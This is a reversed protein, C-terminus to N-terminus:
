CGGLCRLGAPTINKPKMILARPSSSDWAPCVARRALRNCLLIWAHMKMRSGSDMEQLIVEGMMNCLRGLHDAHKFSKLASSSQLRSSLPAYKAPHPPKSSRWPGALSAAGHSQPRRRRHMAQALLHPLFGDFIERPSHPQCNERTALLAPHNRCQLQISM